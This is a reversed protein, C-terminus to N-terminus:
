RFGPDRFAAGHDAGRLNAAWVAPTIRRGIGDHEIEVITVPPPHHHRSGAPKFKQKIQFVRNHQSPTVRQHEVIVPQNFDDRRRLRQGFDPTEVRLMQNTEGPM